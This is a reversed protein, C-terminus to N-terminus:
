HPGFYTTTSTNYAQQLALFTHAYKPPLPTTYYGLLIRRYGGVWRGCHKGQMQKKVAV